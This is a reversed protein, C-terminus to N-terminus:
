TKRAGSWNYVTQYCKKIRKKMPADTSAAFAKHGIEQLVDLYMATKDALEVEFLTDQRGAM